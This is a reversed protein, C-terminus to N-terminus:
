AARGSKMMEARVPNLTTDVDLITKMSYEVVKKCNSKYDNEVHQLEQDTRRRLDASDNSTSNLAASEQAFKEEEKQKFIELEKEAAARAEKLKKVRNERAQAVIKEAKTEAELLTNILEQSKSSM